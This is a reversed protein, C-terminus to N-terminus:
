LASSTKSIPGLAPELMLFSVVLHINLNFALIRGAQEHPNIYKKSQRVDSFLFKSELKMGM